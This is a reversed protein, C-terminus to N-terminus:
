LLGWGVLYYKKPLHIMQTVFTNEPFAKCLFPIHPISQPIAPLPSNVRFCDFTWPRSFMCPCSIHTWNRSQSLQSTLKLHNCGVTIGWCASTYSNSKPRQAAQSLSSKPLKINLCKTPIPPAWGTHHLSTNDCWVQQRATTNCLHHHDGYCAAPDGSVHM